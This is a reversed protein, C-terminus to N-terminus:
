ELDGNTHFMNFHFPATKIILVNKFTICLTLSSLHSCEIEYKASMERERLLDKIRKKLFSKNQSKFFGRENKSPQCKRKQIKLCMDILQSISLSITQCCKIHRLTFSLVFQYDRKLNMLPTHEEFSSKFKTGNFIIKLFQLMDHFKM